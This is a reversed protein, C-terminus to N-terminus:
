NLRGYITQTPTTCLLRLMSSTSANGTCHFSQRPWRFFSSSCCIFSSIFWNPSVSVAHHFTPRHAHSYLSSCHHGCRMKSLWGCIMFRSHHHHGHRRSLKNWNQRCFPMAIPAITFSILISTSNTHPPPGLFWLFMKPITIQGVIAHYELVIRVLRTFYGSMQESIVQRLEITPRADSIAVNRGYNM